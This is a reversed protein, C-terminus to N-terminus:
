RSVQQLQPLRALAPADLPDIEVIPQARDFRYLRGTGPGRVKLATRGVYRFTTPTRHRIRAARPRPSITRRQSGCCPM